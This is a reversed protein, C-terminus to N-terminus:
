VWFQVQTNLHLVIIHHDLIRDRQLGPNKQNWTKFIFKCIHVFTWPWNAHDIYIWIPIQWFPPHNFMNLSFGEWTNKLMVWKSFYWHMYTHMHLISAVDHLSGPLKADLKMVKTCNWIYIYIRSWSMINIYTVAAAASGSAFSPLSPPAMWSSQKELCSSIKNKNRNTKVIKEPFLPNQSTSVTCWSLAFSLLAM